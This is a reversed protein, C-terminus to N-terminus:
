AGRPMLTRGAWVLGLAALAGVLYPHVGGSAAKIPPAVSVTMADAPVFARPAELVLAPAVPAPAPVAAPAPTPPPAIQAKAKTAAAEITKESSVTDGQLQTIRSGSVIPYGDDSTVQRGLKASYVVTAMSKDMNTYAWVDGDPLVHFTFTADFAGYGPRGYAPHRFM